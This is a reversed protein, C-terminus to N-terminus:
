KSAAVCEKAIKQTAASVKATDDESLGGMTGDEKPTSGGPKIMKQLGDQSVGEDVYLKAACDALKADKLGSDQLAKSLDAQSVTSQSDESSCAGLLPLAICAAAILSIRLPEEIRM